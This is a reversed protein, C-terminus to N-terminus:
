SAAPSLTPLPQWDSGQQQGGGSPMCLWLDAPRHADGEDHRFTDHVRLPWRAFQQTAHVFAVLSPKGLLSTQMLYCGYAQQASVSDWHSLRGAAVMAKFEDTLTNVVHSRKLRQLRTDLFAVKSRMLAAQAVLEKVWKQPDENLSFVWLQPVVKPPVHLAALKAAAESQALWKGLHVPTAMLQASPVGLSSSQCDPLSESFHDQLAATDKPWLHVVPQGYINPVRTDWCRKTKDTCAEAYRNEKQFWTVSLDDVSDRPVVVPRLGFSCARNLTEELRRSRVHVNALVLEEIRLSFERREIGLKGAPADSFPACAHCLWAIAVLCVTHAGKM